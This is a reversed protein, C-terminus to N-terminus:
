FNLRPHILRPFVLYRPQFLAMILAFYATSLVATSVFEAVDKWSKRAIRLYGYICAILLLLNATWAPVAIFLDPRAMHGATRLFTLMQEIGAHLFNTVFLNAYDWFAAISIGIFYGWRNDKMSLVLTAIYMWAQCFHLWRLDAEWYASVFLVVLFGLAGTVITWNLLSINRAHTGM